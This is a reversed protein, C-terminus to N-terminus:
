KSNIDFLLSMKLSNGSFVLFTKLTDPFLDKKEPFFMNLWAM